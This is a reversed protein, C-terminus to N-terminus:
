AEELLNVDLLSCLNEDAKKHCRKLTKKIFLIVLAMVRRMKSLDSTMKTLQSAIHDEQKTLFM